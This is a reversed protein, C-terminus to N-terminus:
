HTSDKPGRKLLKEFFNYLSKHWGGLVLGYAILALSGLVAFLRGMQQFLGFSYLLILVGLFIYLAAKLHRKDSLGDMM